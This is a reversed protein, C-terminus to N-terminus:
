MLKFVDIFEIKLVIKLSVGKEEHRDGTPKARAKATAELRSVRVRLACM